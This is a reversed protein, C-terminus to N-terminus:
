ELLVEYIERAIRDAIEKEEIKKILIRGSPFITLEYEKKFVAIHSTVVVPIYGENSLKKAVDDLILRLNKDPKVEYAASTRCPASVFKV